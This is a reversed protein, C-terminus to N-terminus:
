PKLICAEPTNKKTQDGATVRVVARVAATEVTVPVVRRRVRVPVDRGEVEKLERYFQADL